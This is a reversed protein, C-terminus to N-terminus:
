SCECLYKELDGMNYRSFGQRGLYDKPQMKRIKGLRVGECVYTRMRDRKMGFYSAATKLDCWEPHVSPTSYEQRISMKFLERTLWDSWDKLLEISVPAKGEGRAVLLNLPNEEPQHRIERMTTITLFSCSLVHRQRPTSSEQGKIMFLGFM